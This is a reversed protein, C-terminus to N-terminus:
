ENKEKSGSPYKIRKLDTARRMLRDGFRENISDSLRDIRGQQRDREDEFLSGQQTEGGQLGSVGVGLLRIAFRGRPLAQELLEVATTWIERTQSTPRSLTRSRTLTTFDALRLKLQVTRGQYDGTRLRQGVQEALDVVVARLVEEESVDEAFTTENSISRARHEPVVARSDIGRSLLALHDGWAGLQKHLFQRDLRRLDAITTIGLDHLQREGAKGVGWLRRVPLPDLFAQETGPPVIVFGDPKDLDSALKALFKNRAVGVSATLHLEDLIEQKIRRGITEATGFLRESDTVDLFAEDLSLPEVLPTYRLFIDRIQRSVSAYLSFNGPLVILQRCLKMARAMPMASHIGFQRATYSAAAVVGRREPSGGVVVPRGKLEPREREEVSAFFADMDIHLIM